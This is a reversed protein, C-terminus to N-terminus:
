KATSASPLGGVVDGPLIGHRAFWGKTVELAYLIAQSDSPVPTEDFAKMDHIELIRGSPSIYAVSLPTPTDKMWFSVPRPQSFVFVMGEDDGLNARSMLGRERSADDAAVQTTLSNTGLSLVARPLDRQPTPSPAAKLSFGQILILLVIAAFHM